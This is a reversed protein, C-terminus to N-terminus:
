VYRIKFFGVSSLLILYVDNLILDLAYFLTMSFFRVPKLQIDRIIMLIM